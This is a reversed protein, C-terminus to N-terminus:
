ATAVLREVGACAGALAALTARVVAAPAADALKAQGAVSRQGLLRDDRRLVLALRVVARDRAPEGLFALLEGELTLAPTLGSDAGVVAGFRGSAALWRRLADTVGEAPPVAWQNYFDVHLSGDPRLWEVGTAALGPGAALARVALVPGAPPAARRVPRHVTIPWVKRAVYAPRALVGCGGLTGAAALTLAARRGFGSV